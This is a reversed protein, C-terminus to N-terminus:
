RMEYACVYLWMVVFIFNALIQLALAISLFFPQTRQCFLVFFCVLAVRRVDVAYCWINFIYNFNYLKIIKNNNSM